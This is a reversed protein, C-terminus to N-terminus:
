REGDGRRGVDDCLDDSALIEAAFLVMLADSDELEVGAPTQEITWGDNGSRAVLYAGPTEWGLLEFRADRPGRLVIRFLRGDDLLLYSLGVERGIGPFRMTRGRESDDGGRLVFGGEQTLRWEQREGAGSVVWGEDAPTATLVSRKGSSLCFGGAALRALAHQQVEVL